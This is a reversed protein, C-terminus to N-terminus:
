RVLAIGARLHSSRKDYDLLTEGYGDFWQVFFYSAFDLSKSRIPYSASIEISGRDFDKGIRGVFVLSLSDNKGLIAVWDAYGRYKEIDNNEEGQALYGFFKPALILNWGDLDGFMAIPRLFLTDISRSTDGDKGNSEHHYGTQYGLFHSGRMVSEKPQISEWMLEPMYSTDYFPSSPAGIDWVSQQTYAFHLGQREAEGPPSLLRYKLSFQFKAEPERTGSIFYAPLYPSLRDIFTRQHFSAAPQGLSTPPNLRGASDQAFAMARMDIVWTVALLLALSRPWKSSMKEINRLDADGRM